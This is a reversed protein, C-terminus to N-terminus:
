DSLLLSISVFQKMYWYCIPWLMTKPLMGNGISIPVRPREFNSFLFFLFDVEDINRCMISFELFINIM